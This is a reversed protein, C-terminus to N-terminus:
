QWAMINKQWLVEQNRIMLRGYQKTIEKLIGTERFFYLFINEEKPHIIIYNNNNMPLIYDYLNNM